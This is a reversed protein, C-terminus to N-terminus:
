QLNNDLPFVVILALALIFAYTLITTIIKVVKETSKIAETTKGAEEISLVINNNVKVKRFNIYQDESKKFLAFAM